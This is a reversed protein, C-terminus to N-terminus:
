SLRVDQQAQNASVKSGRLPSATDTIRQSHRRVWVLGRQRISSAQVPASAWSHVMTTTRRVKPRIAGKIKTDAECM